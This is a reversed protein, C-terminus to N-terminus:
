ANVIVCLYAKNVPILLLGGRHMMAIYCHQRAAGCNEYGTPILTIRACIVGDFTPNKFVDMDHFSPTFFGDTM